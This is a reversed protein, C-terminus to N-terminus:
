IIRPENLNRFWQKCKTFVYTVHLQEKEAKLTNNFEEKAQKMRIDFEYRFSLLDYMRLRLDREQDV